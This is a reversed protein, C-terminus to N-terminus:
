AVMKAQRSRMGWAVAYLRNPRRQVRASSVQELWRVEAADARAFCDASFAAREEVPRGARALGGAVFEAELENRESQYLRAFTRYDRLTARHLAEHRWFLTAPDYIGTPAPGTDPLEADVWAPKFVGTCPAATATFFHTAHDPHLRSAMSGITQGYRIPGFGAHMCVTSRSLGRDPRWDEDDAGHDRLVSMVTSVDIAGRRAALLDGTCRRRFAGHAYHTYFRDAYCRSFHFSKPDECWGKQVARPILDPSILDWEDGISLRNSITYIGRVQKAIWHREATELVWADHPDAIIFSNHYPINRKFGSNGEQGHEVLLDTIVVLADRATTARELALRLLDMGILGNKKEHPVRTFVAENGIAVGHENAGMEAGWIWFPKALLVAYTHEVQPIDIYTCKVRSGPAHDQAPVRLLHHAENPERDSNKGFVTVGDATVEGTAVVTDCM